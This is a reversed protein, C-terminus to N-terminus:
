WLSPELKICGSIFRLVFLTSRNHGGLFLWVTKLGEISMELGSILVSSAIGKAGFLVPHLWATMKSISLRILPALWSSGNSRPNLRLLCNQEQSSAASPYAM